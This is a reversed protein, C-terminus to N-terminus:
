GGCTWGRSSTWKIDEGALTLVSRRSPGSDQQGQGQRMFDVMKGRPRGQYANTMDAKVPWNRERTLLQLEFSTGPMSISEQDGHDHKQKCRLIM